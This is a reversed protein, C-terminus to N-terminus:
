PSIPRKFVATASWDRHDVTNKQEIGGGYQTSGGVLKIVGKSSAQGVRSHMTYNLMEWGQAGLTDAVEVVEKVAGQPYPYESTNIWFYQWRQPYWKGDSALWWGPGPSPSLSSGSVDPTPSIM